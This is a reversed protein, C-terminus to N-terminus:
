PGPRRDSVFQPNSDLRPNPVFPQGDVPVFPQGDVPVFPQGDVHVFPQGDVPVFPQGDVPLFISAFSIPRAGPM